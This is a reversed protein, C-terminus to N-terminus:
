KTTTRNQIKFLRVECEQDARQPVALCFLDMEPVLLSTRAGPATAVRETRECNGKDKVAFVDIFGEGCSALLHRGRAELFLDDADGSMVAEGIQRGNTTDLLVLRPPQRCGIFLRQGEEDLAMPYNEGAGELPWCEEVSRSLRDGVAVCKSGPLNVFVRSGHRELQFAEPRGKLAIDITHVGSISNVVGLAGTGYGVYVRGSLADHRLDGAGPLAGITKVLRFTRCDLMKVRGEGGCAVFLVDAKPLLLMGQPKGPVPITRLRKGAKLDLVEVTDNDRAAVYLRQSVADVALRGLRGHVGAMPISAAQQLLGVSGARASVSLALGLLLPVTFKM